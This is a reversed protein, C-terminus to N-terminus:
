VVERFYISTPLMGVFWTKTIDITTELVPMLYGNLNGMFRTGDYILKYAGDDLSIIYDEFGVPVKFTSEVTFTSPVDVDWSVGDLGTLSIWVDGPYLVNTEYTVTGTITGPIVAPNGLLIDISGTEENAITTPTINVNPEAYDVIFTEITSTAVRNFEDYAEFKIQYTYTDRFGSFTQVLGGNEIMGSDQSLEGDEDYIYVQYKKPRLGDSQAWTASFEYEQTTITAPVVQTLTPEAYGFFFIEELTDVTDTDDWTQLSWKLEQNNTVSAAPITVSLTEANLLATALTIVGTDYLVASTDNNYIILQYDTILDGSVTATFVQEVSMDLATNKPYPNIILYASM